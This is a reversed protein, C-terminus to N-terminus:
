LVAVKARLADFATKGSSIDPSVVPKGTRQVQAITPQAYTTRWSNAQNTVSNLDGSTAAPLQGVLRRLSDIASQEAAAGTTYPTLYSQQATLAYGRVGTEQNVLANDLLETQETAPDIVNIVRNRADRLSVLAIGGAVVSGVSFLLLALVAVGIIRSLPWSM